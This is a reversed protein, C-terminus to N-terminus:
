HVPVAARPYHAKSDVPRYAPSGLPLDRYFSVSIASKRLMPRTPTRMKVVDSRRLGVPIDAFDSLAM